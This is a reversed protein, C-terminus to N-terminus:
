KRVTVQLQPSRRATGEGLAFRFRRMRGLRVVRRQVGLLNGTEVAGQASGFPLPLRRRPIQARRDPRGHDVVRDLGCRRRRPDHHLLDVVRRRHALQRPARARSQGGEDLLQRRGLRAIVFEFLTDCIPLQMGMLHSRAKDEKLLKAGRFFELFPLSIYKKFSSQLCSLYKGDPRLQILM